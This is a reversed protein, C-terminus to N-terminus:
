NTRWNEVTIFDYMNTVKFEVPGGPGTSGTTKAFSEVGGKYLSDLMGLGYLKNTDTPSKYSAGNGEPKIEDYNMACIYKMENCLDELIKQGNTEDTISKLAYNISVANGMNWYELKNGSIITGIVTGATVHYIFDDWYNAWSISDTSQHLTDEHSIGFRLRASSITVDKFKFNTLPYKGKKSEDGNSPVAISIDKIDSSKIGQVISIDTFKYDSQKNNYNVPVTQNRLVTGSGLDRVHSMHVTNQRTGQYYLVDLNVFNALESDATHTNGEYDWFTAKAIPGLTKDRNIVSGTVPTGNLNCWSYKKTTSDYKCDVLESADKGNTHVISGGWSGDYLSDAMRSTRASNYTKSKLDTFSKLNINTQQYPWISNTSTKTGTSLYAINNAKDTASADFISTASTKWTGSPGSGKESGIKIDNILLDIGDGLVLTSTSDIYVTGRIDIKTKEGSSSSGGTFVLTGYNYLNIDGNIIVRNGDFVVGTCHINLANSSNSQIGIYANGEQFLAGYDRSAANAQPSFNSGGDNNTFDAGGGTFMSYSSLSYASAPPRYVVNNMVLDTSINTFYGNQNEYNIEVSLSIYGADKTGKSTVKKAATVRLKNPDWVYEGTGNDTGLVKKVEPTLNYFFFKSLKDSDDKSFKGGFSSSIGTTNKLTEEAMDLFSDSNSDDLEKASYVAISQLVTSMDDIASQAAYFNKTSRTNVKRSLLANYSMEVILTAMLMVVTMIIMVSILAVGNNDKLKKRFIKKM